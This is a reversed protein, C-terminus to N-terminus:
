RGFKAESDRGHHNNDSVKSQHRARGRSGAAHPLPKDPMYSDSSRGRIVTPLGRSCVARSRELRCSQAIPLAFKEIYRHRSQQLTCTASFVVHLKESGPWPKSLTQRSGLWREFRSATAGSLMHESLSNSSCRRKWNLLRGHMHYVNIGTLPRYLGYSRAQSISLVLPWM